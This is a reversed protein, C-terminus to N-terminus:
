MPREENLYTTFGLWVFPISTRNLTSSSIFYQRVDGYTLEMSDTLVYMTVERSPNGDWGSLARLYRYPRDWAKLESDFHRYAGKVFFLDNYYPTGDLFFVVRLSADKGRESTDLFEQWREAGGYLFSRVNVDKGGVVVFCGDAVAQEPTYKGPLNDFGTYRKERDLTFSIPSAKGPWKSFLNALSPQHSSLSPQYTFPRYAFPQYSSAETLSKDRNVGSLMLLLAASLMGLLVAAKRMDEERREKEDSENKQRM